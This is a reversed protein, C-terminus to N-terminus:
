GDSDEERRLEEYVKLTHSLKEAVKNIAYVVFIPFWLTSVLVPPIWWNVDQQVRVQEKKAHALLLTFTILGVTIYFLRIIM